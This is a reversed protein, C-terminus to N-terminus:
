ILDVLVFNSILRGEETLRLTTETLELLGSQVHKDIAAQKLSYIDVGFRAAFRRRDIGEQTMRMGMMITESIEDEQSVPVIKSTAPTRPFTLGSPVDNFSDIYRSPARKVITRKGAAYGHAGAGIGLYPLNRWYQINHQSEYGPQAWNSIEYQQFGATKLVSGALEYMAVTVDDDPLTLQGSQIAITLPTGGHLELGYLSVNEPKMGAAFDLTRQWDAIAQGPTGFIVDLSINRFDASRANEVAQVVAEPSHQRGYLELERQIASQMGISLRNVGLDRLGAAYEFTVNEPNTELTVEQLSGLDFFNELAAQIRAVQSLSLIGPTGGGYFVTYVSLGPQARGIYEVESVVADVYPEILDDDLYTNFACYTCIYECFPIHIYISVPASKHSFPTM